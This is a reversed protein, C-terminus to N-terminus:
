SAIALLLVSEEVVSGLACSMLDHDLAKALICSSRRSLCRYSILPLLLSSTELSASPAFTSLAYFLAKSSCYAQQHSVVQNM